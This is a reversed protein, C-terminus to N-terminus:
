KNGAWIRSLSIAADDIYLVSPSPSTGDNYNNVAWENNAHWSNYNPNDFSTRISTFNFLQIGDQWFAVQGDFDKSQYLYAEFNVWQGVPVTSISQHYSKGSINSIHYPGSINTGGWGWGAYIKMKGTGDNEGYFAWVPDNRGDVSRSKFQFLNWFQGNSTSHTLAYQEPFYVWVSYYAGRQSRSEDWRFARVGSTQTSNFWTTAKLSYIGDHKQETSVGYTNTGSTYIGGGNYWDNLNGEEADGTWLYSSVVQTPTALPSTAQTPTPLPSNSQTPTPLPSNAQTPTALPSIIQTPTPTPTATKTPTSTPTPTNTV